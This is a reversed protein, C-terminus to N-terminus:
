VEDKRYNKVPVDLPDTLHGSKIADSQESNSGPATGPAKDTDMNGGSMSGFVMCGKALSSLDTASNSTFANGSNDEFAKTM